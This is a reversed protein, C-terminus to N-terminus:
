RDLGSNEGYSNRGIRSYRARVIESRRSGRMGAQHAANAGFESANTCLSMPLAMRRSRVMSTREECCIRAATHAGGSSRCTEDVTTSVLNLWTPSGEQQVQETFTEQQLETGPVRGPQCVLDLCYHFM